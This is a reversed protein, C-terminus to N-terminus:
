LRWMLWHFRPISIFLVGNKFEAKINYGNCSEPLQFCTCCSGCGRISWCDDEDQKRCQGKIVPTDVKLSDKIDGMSAGDFQIKIENEGYKIDRHMRGEGGSCSKDTLTMGHKFLMPMKEIIHNIKWMSSCDELAM